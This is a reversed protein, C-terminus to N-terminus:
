SDFRKSLILNKNTPICESYLMKKKGRLSSNNLFDKPILNYNLYKKPIKKDTIEIIDDYGFASCLIQSYFESRTLLNSKPEFVNLTSPCIEVKYIYYKILYLGKMSLYKLWKSGISFKHPTFHIMIM